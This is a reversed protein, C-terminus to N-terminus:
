SQCPQEGGDTPSNTPRTYITAQARLHEFFAGIEEWAEQGGSLGRWYLRIKGVLQYCVDIPALYYERQERVRNILLAEVDEEMEELVPNAALISQWQELGLLSEMAGAPSPYFARAGQATRFIYVMNVPLMLAEWQAEDLQFDSLLLVRRPIARYRAQQREAAFLLTCANCSCLCARSSLDLLHRHESALVEGCLECHEASAQEIPQTRAFRRLARLPPPVIHGDDPYNATM